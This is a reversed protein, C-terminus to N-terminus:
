FAEAARDIQAAKIVLVHDTGTSHIVVATTDVRGLRELWASLAGEAAEATDFKWADALSRTWHAGRRDEPAILYIPYVTISSPGIRSDYDTTSTSAIVYSM